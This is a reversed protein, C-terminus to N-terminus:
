TGVVWWDEPDSRLGDVIVDVARGVQAELSERPLSRRHERTMEWYDEFVPNRCLVRLHGIVENWSMAGVRHHLVMSAYQSNVFLVQRRRRESLDPLTSLAEALAPDAMARELQAAAIRHLQILNAHRIEQALLTLQRLLEEALSEQRSRRSVRRFPSRM